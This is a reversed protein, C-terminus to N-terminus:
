VLTLRLWQIEQDNLDGCYPSIEENAERTDGAMTAVM